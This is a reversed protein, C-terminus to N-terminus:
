SADRYRRVRDIWGQLNPARLPHPEVKQEPAINPNGFNLFLTHGYAQWAKANEVVLKIYHDEWHSFFQKSSQSAALISEYSGPGVNIFCSLNYIDKDTWVVNTASLIKSYLSLCPLYFKNYYLEITLENKEEDTEYSLQEKVWAKDTYQDFGYGEWIEHAIEQFHGSIMGAYNWDGAAEDNFKFGGEDNIIVETIQSVAIAPIQAYPIYTTTM